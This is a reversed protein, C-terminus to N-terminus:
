YLEEYNIIECRGCVKLDDTADFTSKDVTARLEELTEGSVKFEATCAKYIEAVEANIVAATKTGSVM